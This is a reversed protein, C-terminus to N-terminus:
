ACFSCLSSELTLPHPSMKRAAKASISIAFSLDMYESTKCWYVFIVFFSLRDGNDIRILDFVALDNLDFLLECRALADGGRLIGEGQCALM